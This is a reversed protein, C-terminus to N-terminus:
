IITTSNSVRTATHQSVESVFCRLSVSNGMTFGLNNTKTEVGLIENWSVLGGLIMAIISEFGARSHARARRETWGLIYFGVNRPSRFRDWFVIDVAMKNGSALLFGTGVIRM